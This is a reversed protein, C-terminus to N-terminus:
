NDIKDLVLEYSVDFTGDGADASAGGLQAVRGAIDQFDGNGSGEKIDGSAHFGNGDWAGSSDYSFGGNSCSVDGTIDFIGWSGEDRGYLSEIIDVTCGDLDGDELTIQYAVKVGNAPQEATKEGIGNNFAVNTRLEEASAATATMLAAIATMSILPVNFTM